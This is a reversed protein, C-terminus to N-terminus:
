WGGRARRRAWKQIVTISVAVTFSYAVATGILQVWTAAHSGFLDGMIIEALIEMVVAIVSIALVSRLRIPPLYDLAIATVIYAVALRLFSEWALRVDGAVV